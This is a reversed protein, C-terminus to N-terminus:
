KKRRKEKLNFIITEIGMWGCWTFYLSVLAPILENMMIFKIFIGISLVVEIMYVTFIDFENLQVFINNFKKILKM